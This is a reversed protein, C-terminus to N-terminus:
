HTSGWSTGIKYEGALPVNLNYYEGAKVISMTALKGVIEAIDPSCEIQFEDHFNGVFRADLNQKKFQDYLLVLARKMLISGCSQFLTNILAHKYRVTLPRGDIALLYGDREFIDELYSRLKKLGPNGEWYSDYIQQAQQPPKNLTNALKSPSCGYLIAYKGTKAINRDVQFIEANLSHIDGEILEFAAAKDYPYTYHAECRAELASADCGVLVKGPSAIFLERMQRGYYVKEDAKPINTVIRHKMRATNTGATNAQAEIRNDERVNAILGKKKGKQEKGKLMNRRHCAKGRQALLRISETGVKRVLDDWEEDKEPLIPSTRVLRGREDRIKKKGKKKFNWETPKWGHSLLYSKVQDGSGLNLSEWSIRCFDGSLNGSLQGSLNLWSKATETIEGNAKFAKCVTEKYPKKLMMPLQPNLKEDITRIISSLEDLLKFAKELDFAWGYDAQEEIIKWVKHELIFVDKFNIRPDNSRKKIESSIYKFLRAQIKVDEKCRHLMEESFQSWDEHKPKAINFRIGWADVSHPGKSGKPTELDPWLIRSALLTDFYKVGVEDLDINLLKKWVKLDFGIGNHCSVIKCDKIFLRFENITNPTFQKFEGTDLNYAIICHIRDVEPWLGNTEMDIIWTM